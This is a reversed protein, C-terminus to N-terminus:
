LAAIEAATLARNYILVHDVAASTTVGDRQSRGIRLDPVSALPAMYASRNTTVSAQEVGEVYLRLTAGDYSMAVHHWEGRVVPATGTAHIEPYVRAADLREHFGATYRLAGSVYDIGLLFNEDGGWADVIPQYSTAAGDYRVRMSVTVTSLRGDPLDISGGGASFVAANCFVGAGFAVPAVVTGDNHSSSADRGDMEFEYAGVLGASPYPRASPCTGDAVCIAGVRVYGANCTFGCATGSCTATGNPPALCATCLGGCTAVSSNNVCAGGCDHSGPNCTFGCSGSACTATAGAPATCTNACRGCNALSASLSTECGNAAMGDCNGFGANCTFGCTGAACTPSANAPTPCVAGCAGCNGLETRTDHCAGACFTTPSACVSACTGGSCLTGAPCANGCAGCHANSTAFPAECGNAATGDCNGFGAACAGLGCAGGACVASANAPTPCAAGCAGCSTVATSLATECGNAAVGDCNGFGANCTFGCAGAACTPSANAPTPCANGCAGCHTTSTALATECGNLVNGDCNGFGADCTGIGCAGSLCAATANAPTPCAMGCAGCNTVASSLPAECGNTADRDCDGFGPHCAGLGCVGAACTSSTNPPRACLHGCAGCHEATIALNTECGNAAELDCDGYGTNCAFSCAGAACTARASAPTACTRGCAGCNSPDSDLNFCASGCSTTGAACTSGCSAISCVEGLRCVTGCTGCNTNTTTATECGNAVLGDCDAFGPVCTGIACRGAACAPAANATSCVTTCSSCATATTNLNTECGNTPDADCDGSGANCRLGCAGRTCTATANPGGPCMRGCAGCHSLNSDLAVECGNAANQDCDGFGASCMTAACTGAACVPTANPLACAAGCAGCNAADTATTVCRGSCCAQGTACAHGCAGCNLPDSGLSLCSTVCCSAGTPCGRTSSCGPTCVGESCVTGLACDRDAVCGVCAHRVLDCRLTSGRGVCEGDDRCGPACHRSSDCYRGTPCTDTPSALCGVCLGTATDCVPRDPPDICDTNATCRGTRTGDPPADSPPADPAVDLAVLTDVGLDSAADPTVTATESSCAAFLCFLSLSLSRRLSIM